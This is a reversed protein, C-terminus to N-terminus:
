KKLAELEKLKLDLFDRISKCSKYDVIIGVEFDRVIGDKSGDLDKIANSIKGDNDLEYVTGKPISMRQNFFNINIFGSPTVTGHAGDVHIQKFGSSKVNYITITDKKEKKAM